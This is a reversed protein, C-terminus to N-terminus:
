DSRIRRVAQSLLRKATACAKATSDARVDWPGRVLDSWDVWVTESSLHRGSNDTFRFLGERLLDVRYRGPGVRWVELRVTIPEDLEIDTELTAVITRYRTM